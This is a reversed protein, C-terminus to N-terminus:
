MEQATLTGRYTTVSGSGSLGYLTVTHKGPPATFFGETSLPVRQTYFGANSRVAVSSQANMGVYTDQYSGGATGDVDGAYSVRVPRGSTYMTLTALAVYTGSTTSPSGISSSVVSPVDGVVAAPFVDTILSSGDTTVYGVFVRQKTEWASGNWRKMLGTAPNYWHKDTTTSPTAVQFVPVVVSKGYTLAGSNDRDVYIYTTTSAAFSSWAGSVDASVQAIVDAPSGSDFGTAFTLVLPTTVALLDLATAGPSTTEQMEVETVRWYTSVPASNALIQWYQYTYPTGIDIINTGGSVAATVADTWSIGDSSYRVKVSTVYYTNDQTLVVRRITKTAGFNQGIYSVGNIGGGTEDAVWYTSMSNDFANTEPAQAYFSVENVGWAGGGNTGGTQLIRWYQHAATETATGSPNSTVVSPYADSTFWTSGNDSYQLSIGTPWDITDSSINFSYLAVPVGFDKGVYSTNPVNGLYSLYGGGGLYLGDFAGPISGGSSISTGITRTDPGAGSGSGIAFGTTTEDSGYTLAPAYLFDPDGSGDTLASLIANRTRGTNVASANSLGDLKTKDVAELLGRKTTTADRRFVSM